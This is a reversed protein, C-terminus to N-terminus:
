KRLQSNRMLKSMDKQMDKGEKLIEKNDKYYMMLMGAPDIVYISALTQPTENKKFSFSKMLQMGQDTQMDIVITQMGPYDKLNERLKDNVANKSIIFLRKLRFIEKGQTLRVNKMLKLHGLCKVDCESSQIYVYTWKKKFFKNSMVKSDIDKLGEINVERVPIVFEGYNSTGLSRVADPYYKFMVWAAVMPAVILLVLMPVTARQWFTKRSVNETM